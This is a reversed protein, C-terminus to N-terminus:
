PRLVVHLQVPNRASARRTRATDGRDPNPQRPPREHFCCSPGKFLWKLVNAVWDGSYGWMQACFRALYPDSPLRLMTVYPAGAAGM